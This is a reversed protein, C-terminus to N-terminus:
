PRREAVIPFTLRVEVGSPARDLIVISGREGYLARLRERINNLGIGTPHEARLGLGTDIVDITLTDHARRASVQVTGGDLKPELGHKVANEVLPQILLPPLALARLDDPVDIHYRLRKGMRMAQIELYATIVALEDALTTDHARTRQLGARLYDTFHELMRRADRPDTEILSAVNSLTNFLFHPEIQAQLLKLETHTLRQTQELRKVNEAQLAAQSQMLAGRAYFYYSVITGFVLAAAFSVIIVQPHNAFLDILSVGALASGIFIGAVSGLPVAFFHVNLQGEKPPRIWALTHATLFISLGIAQSFVFNTRLEIDTVVALFVAIVANILSVLLLEKAFARWFAAGCQARAPTINM